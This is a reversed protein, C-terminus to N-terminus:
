NILLDVWEQIGDEDEVLEQISRNASSWSLLRRGLEESSDILDNQVREWEHTIISLVPHGARIRPLVDHTFVGESGM